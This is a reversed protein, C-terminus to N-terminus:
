RCVGVVIVFESLAAPPRASWQPPVGRVIPFAGEAHDSPSRGSRSDEDGASESAEALVVAVAVAVMFRLDGVKVPVPDAACLTEYATTKSGTSSLEM